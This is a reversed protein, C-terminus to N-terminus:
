RILLLLLLLLLLLRGLFLRYLRFLFHRCRATLVAIIACSPLQWETVRTSSAEWTGRSTEFVLFLLWGDQWLHLKTGVPKLVLQVLGVIMMKKKLNERETDVGFVFKNWGYMLTTDCASKTHGYEDLARPSWVSSRRCYIRALWAEDDLQM